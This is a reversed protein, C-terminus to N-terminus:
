ALDSIRDLPVAWPRPFYTRLFAKSRHMTATAANSYYLSTLCLGALGLQGLYSLM